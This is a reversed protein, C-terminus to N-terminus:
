VSNFSEGNWLRLINEKFFSSGAILCSYPFDVQVLVWNLFTFAWETMFDTALISFKLGKLFLLFLMM